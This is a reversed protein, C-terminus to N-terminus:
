VCLHVCLRVRLLLLLLLVTGTVDAGNKLMGGLGTSGM